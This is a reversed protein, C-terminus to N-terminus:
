LATALNAHHLDNLHIGLERALGDFPVGVLEFRRLFRERCEIPLELALLASAGALLFLNATVDEGIGVRQHRPGAKAAEATSAEKVRM